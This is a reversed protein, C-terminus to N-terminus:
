IIKCVEDFELRPGRPFLKSDDGYGINCLFNATWSTGKLFAEDVKARDFGGMPGVDLGLARAALMLYAGQLSGSQFANFHSMQANSEFMPKLDAFPFLTPLKMYFKEDCAIIATVPAAKVQEINSGLLTPYLKEKAEKSRVFIIRMPLSNASTPGWKALNYLSRLMSDPVPKDTWAHHTRAETFLQATAEASISNKSM